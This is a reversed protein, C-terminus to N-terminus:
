NYQKASLKQVGTFLMVNIEETLQKQWNKDIRSIGKKLFSFFFWSYMTILNIERRDM